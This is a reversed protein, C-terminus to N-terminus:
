EEVNGAIGFTWDRGLYNGQLPPVACHIWLEAIAELNRAYRIPGVYIPRYGISAVIPAIDKDPGAYMMDKGTGDSMHEVGLTNFAKYVKTNPLLSQIYEGASTGQKWRVQLGDSFESLPNTADILIKNSLDGLSEIMEKLDEDNQISVTALILVSAAAIAIASEQVMLHGKGM